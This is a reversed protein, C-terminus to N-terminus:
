VREWKPTWYFVFVYRGWFVDVNSKVGARKTRSVQFGYYRERGATRYRIVHLPGFFWDRRMCM